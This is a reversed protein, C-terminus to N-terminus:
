PRIPQHEINLLYQLVKEVQSATANSKIRNALNSIVAVNGKVYGLDPIMRDLSPTYDNIGGGWVFPVGLVPCVDPIIIDDTTLDFPVGCRKARQKANSVMTRAQNAYYKAKSYEKREDDPKANYWDRSIQNTSEQHRARHNRAWERAREKNKDRSRKAIAKKRERYEVDTAYREKLSM